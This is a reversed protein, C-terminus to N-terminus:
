AKGLSSSKSIAMVFKSCSASTSPCLIFTLALAIVVVVMVVVVVAEAAEEGCVRDGDCGIMIELGIDRRFDSRPFELNWFDVVVGAACSSDEGSRSRSWDGVM